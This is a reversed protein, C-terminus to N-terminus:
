ARRSRRLLALGGLALLSLSAPEPVQSAGASWGTPNWYDLLIQFDLFDVTYDGNFDGESWGGTAQWHDLLIQFDSFDTYRDLNADAYNTSMYHTLEYSVDEQGVPNSDPYVKWQSTSPQGLHHYIANVDDENLPMGDLDTDGPLAISTAVAFFTATSLSLGTTSIVHNTTDLVGSLKTWGIGTSDYLNLGSESSGAAVDDYRLALDASTFSGSATVEWVGVLAGGHSPVEANAADDLSIAFSASGTLGHVAVKASNVLTLVAASPNEGWNVTPIATTAVVPPLVLKGGNTAFWGNTTAYSIASVAPSGTLSGAASYTGQPGGGVKQYGNGGTLGGITQSIYWTGGSQSLYVPAGDSNQGIQYVTPSVYTYDGNLYDGHGITAGSVLLGGNTPNRVNAVTNTVSTFSSMDLVGGNAIVRGNNVLTGTLAVTGHGQFTGTAPADYRVYLNAGYGTSGRNDQLTGGTFNYTGIGQSGTGPTSSGPPGYGGNTGCNTQDSGVIIGWDVTVAGGSQNFTGVNSRMGAADAVGVEIIGSTDGGEGIGPHMGVPISAAPVQKVNLVGTGSLNYTGTGGQLFGNGVSLFESNHTGGDQNFVGVGPADGEWDWNPNAGIGVETAQCTFTGGHLNYTGSGYSGIYAIDGSNDWNSAATMANVFTVLGGNQTLFGNGGFPGIQLQVGDSLMVTGADVTFTSVGGNAAGGTYLEGGLGIKLATGGGMTLSGGTMHINGSAGNGGGLILSGGSVVDSNITVTAGGVIVPGVTGTPTGNDWNANTWNGNTSGKWFTRATTGLAYYGPQVGAATIQLNYSSTIFGGKVVTVPTWGGGVGNNYYLGIGGSGGYPCNANLSLNFGGTFTATSAVNWVTWVGAGIGSIAPVGANAPDLLSINLNGATTGAPATVTLSNELNNGAAGGWTYTGAGAAVPIAPLMLKGGNVVYWGNSQNAMVWEGATGGINQTLFVDNQTSTSTVSSFSSLDLTGGNAVIIGNNTLAGTFNVTGKGQFVGYAGNGYDPVPHTGAVNGNRVILSAPTAGQTLTGGNLNYYGKGMGGYAGFNCLDSGVILSNRVTVTGGNQNFTGVPSISSNVGVTPNLGTQGGTGNGDLMGVQINTVNLNGATITYVGFGGSDWGGGVTLDGTNHTGGSQNFYGWGPATGNLTLPANRYGSTGCWYGQGGYGLSTWPSNLTGATLNYTGTGGEQGIYYATANSDFPSINWTFDQSGLIGGNQTITGTGGFAGLRINTHTTDVTGNNLTFSGVGAFLHNGEGIIFNGTTGVTLTGGNMVLSGVNIGNGVNDSNTDLGLNLSGSTAVDGVGITVTGGNTIRGDQSSTPLGGAWDGSVTWGGTTANWTSIGALAATSFLAIALAAALFAARREM